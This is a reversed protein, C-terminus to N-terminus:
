GSPARSWSGSTTLFILVGNVALPSKRSTIASTTGIQRSPPGVEHVLRVPSFAATDVYWQCTKQNGTSAYPCVCEALDQGSKQSEDPVAPVRGGSGRIVQHGRTKEDVKSPHGLTRERRSVSVM